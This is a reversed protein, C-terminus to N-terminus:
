IAQWCWHRCDANGTAVVGVPCLAIGPMYRFSGDDNCASGPVCQGVTAKTFCALQRRWNDSTELWRFFIPQRPVSTPHVGPGFFRSITCLFSLSLSFKCVFKRRIMAIAIIEASEHISAVVEGAFAPSQPGTGPSPCPLRRRAPSLCQPAALVARSARAAGLDTPPLGLCAGTTPPPGSRRGCIQPCRPVSGRPKVGASAVAFVNLTLFSTYDTPYVYNIECAADAWGSKATPSRM